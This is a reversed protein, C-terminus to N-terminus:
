RLKKTENDDGDFKPAKGTYVEIRPAQPTISEGNSTIDQRDALGLARAIINANFFGANAGDYQQKYIMDEIKQIVSIFDKALEVGNSAKEQQDKRFFKWFSTSVNLFISLGHISYPVRHPIRQMKIRGRTNMPKSEYWINKDEAEFYEQAAQVLVAPTEFIRKRGHTTRLKWWENGQMAKSAAKYAQPTAKGNKKRTVYKRKLVKKGM